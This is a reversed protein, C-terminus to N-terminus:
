DRKLFLLSFDISRDKVHSAESFMLTRLEKNDNISIPWDILDPDNPDGQKIFNAMRKRYEKAASEENESLINEM